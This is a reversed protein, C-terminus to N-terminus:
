AVKGRHEALAQAGRRQRHKNGCGHFTVLGRSVPKRITAALCM